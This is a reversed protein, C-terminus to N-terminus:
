PGQVDKRAYLVIQTARLLGARVLLRDIWHIGKLLPIAVSDPLTVQATIYGTFAPQIVRREIVFRHSILQLWDHERGAGEFPSLGEAQISAKIRSPARTGFRVLGRLKDRYSIETPLVLMLGSAILVVPLAEDGNSDTVWFLGGPKLAKYVQDIVSELNLLHHLVGKAVVVDYKDAPLDLANLDAVDYTVSGSVEHKITEYYVRAVDLAEESIDLGQAVAGRQAMALTMWGSHCGLELVNMGPQVHSLVADINATHMIVNQRQTRHYRWDPPSDAARQRAVSGWLAAEQDLKAQYTSDNM